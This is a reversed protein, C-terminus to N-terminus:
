LAQLGARVFAIVPDIAAAIEENTLAASPGRDQRDIGPVRADLPPQVVERHPLRAADRRGRVRGVDALLPVRGRRASAHDGRVHGPRFDRPVQLTGRRLAAEGERDDARHRRLETHGVAVVIRRLQAGVAPFRSALRAAASMQMGFDMVNDQCMRRHLADVLPILETRETQAALM